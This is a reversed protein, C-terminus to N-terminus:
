MTRRSTFIEEGDVGIKGDGDSDGAQLFTKTEADTLARASASFNQLFLRSLTILSLHHAKKKKKFSFGKKSCNNEPIM